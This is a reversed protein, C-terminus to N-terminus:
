FGFQKMIYNKIGSGIAGGIAGPIAGGVSGGGPVISEGMSTDGGKGITPGQAGPSSGPAPLLGGAGPAQGAGQVKPAPAPSWVLVDIWRKLEGKGAVYFIFLFILSGVMFGWYGEGRGRGEGQTSGPPRLPDGAGTHEPVRSPPAVPAASSPAPSQDVSKIRPNIRAYEKESLHVPM